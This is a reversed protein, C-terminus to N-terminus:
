FKWNENNNGGLSIIYIWSDKLYCFFLDPCLAGIHDNQSTM